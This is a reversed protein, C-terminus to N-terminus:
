SPCKAKATTSNINRSFPSLTNMGNILGWIVKIKLLPHHTIIAGDFFFFLM